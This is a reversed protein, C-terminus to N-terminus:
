ESDKVVETKRVSMQCMRTWLTVNKIRWTIIHAEFWTEEWSGAGREAEERNLSIRQRLRSNLNVQAWKHKQESKEATDLLNM